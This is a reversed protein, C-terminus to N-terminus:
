TRSNLFKDVIEDIIFQEVEFFDFLVFFNNAIEGVLNKLNSRLLDQTVEGEWKVDQTRCFRGRRLSRSPSSVYMERDILGGHNVKLLYPEDPRIGLNQYLSASHLLVEAIRWIRLDFRVSRSPHGLSSKFSPPGEDEELFRMFYYSGDKLFSWYDFREGYQAKGIRSEIGETTPSPRLENTNIVVGVPWGTNNLTASDAIRLLDAQTWGRESPRLLKQASEVYGITHEQNIAM